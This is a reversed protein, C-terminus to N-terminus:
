SRRKKIRDEFMMLLEPLARARLGVVNDLPRWNIVPQYNLMKEIVKLTRDNLGVQTYLLARIEDKPIYTGLLLWGRLLWALARDQQKNHLYLRFLDKYAFWYYGDGKEEAEKLLSELDAWDVGHDEGTTIAGFYVEAAAGLLSMSSDVELGQKLIDIAKHLHDKKNEEDLKTLTYYCKGLYVYNPWGEPNKELLHEFCHAAYQVYDSRSFAEGSRQFAHGISNIKKEDHNNEHQIALDLWNQCIGDPIHLNDRKHIGFSLIIDFIVEPNESFMQEVEDLVQNQLPLYLEPKSNAVATDFCFHMVGSLSTADHDDSIRIYLDHLAKAYPVKDESLLFQRQNFECLWIWANENDPQEEYLDAAIKKGYESALVAKEPDFRDFYDAVANYYQMRADLLKQGKILEMHLLMDPPEQLSAVEHRELSIEFLFNAFAVDLTQYLYDLEREDNDKQALRIEKQIDTFSKEPLNLKSM